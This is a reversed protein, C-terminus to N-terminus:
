GLYVKQVLENNQVADMSGEALLKGQHLVTVKANLSRIFDMDHEVVVVTHNHSLSIFLEATKEIEEHTLGAAPEDILLLESEQALLMGIELWQKQGHSLIGAPMTLMDDLAITAAIDQVRGQTHSDTDRFLTALIGKHKHAALTLNDIVRLQEFVTPKQFKRGIGIRAIADESKGLLNISDKFFVEGSDPRSKGTIVDMLTTKGAGNPGIICRLQNKEIVLSLVDIAKFGAFSVSIGDIYLTNTYDTKPM